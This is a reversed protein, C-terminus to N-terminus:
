RGKPTGGGVRGRIDILFAPLMCMAPVHDKPFFAGRIGDEQGKEWYEKGKKVKRFNSM